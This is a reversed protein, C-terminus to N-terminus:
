SGPTRYSYVFAALTKGAPVSYEFKAAPSSASISLPELDNGVMDLGLWAAQSVTEPQSSFVVNDVSVTSGDTFEAEVILTGENITASTRGASPGEMQVLGIAKRASQDYRVGLQKFTVNDFTQDPINEIFTRYAM